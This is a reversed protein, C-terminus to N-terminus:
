FFIFGGGGLKELHKGIVCSKPKMGFSQIGWWRSFDEVPFEVGAAPWM